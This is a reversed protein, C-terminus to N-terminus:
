KLVVVMLDILNFLGDISFHSCDAFRSPKVKFTLLGNSTDIFPGALDM